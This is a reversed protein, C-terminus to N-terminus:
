KKEDTFLVNSWDNKGFYDKAYQYRLAVNKDSLLPKKRAFRAYLGAEDLRRAVTRPCVGINLSKEIMRLTSFRSQLSALKKHRDMRPSTKRPRGSKAKVDVNGTEKWKRVINSVTKKPLRYTKALNKTSVGAIHGGVIRNRIDAPVPRGRVM